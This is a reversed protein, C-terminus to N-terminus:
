EPLPSLARREQAQARGGRREDVYCRVRAAPVAPGRNAIDGAPFGGSNRTGDRAMTFLQSRSLWRPARDSRGRYRGSVSGAKRISRAQPIDAWAFVTVTRIRCM